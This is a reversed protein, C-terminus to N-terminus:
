RQESHGQDHRRAHDAHGVVEGVEVRQTAPLGLGDGNPQGHGEEVAAYLRNRVHDPEQPETHDQGNCEHYDGCGRVKVRREGEVEGLMGDGERETEEGPKSRPEKNRDVIVEAVVGCRIEAILHFVWTVHHRPRDYEGYETHAM